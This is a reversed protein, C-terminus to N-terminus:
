RRRRYFLKDSTLFISGVVISTTVVSHALFQDVRDEVTHALKGVVTSTKLTEEDEVGETTASTRTEAGQQQFTERHVIALFGLKFERHVGGRL